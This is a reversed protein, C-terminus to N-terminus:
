PATTRDTTVVTFPHGCGPVGRQEEGGVEYREFVFPAGNAILPRPQDMLQFHLHPESTNGSNGCDAIHEGARVRQGRRVRISGRKLHAFAAYTGDGLDLIVHNGIILRSGGLERLLGEIILYPLTIWSNRSWHDRQWGSTRVVTGDAPAFVPQGFGPFSVPRRAPPWARMGSWDSEEDEHHVLDIAYTQGYADVGHSPVKDAPSNVPVWRGRVPAQVARPEGATVPASAPRGRFAEPGIRSPNVAMLGYGTVFLLLAAVMVWWADHLFLSLGLVAGLLIM